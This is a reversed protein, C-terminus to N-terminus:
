HIRSKYAKAEFLMKVEFDLLQAAQDDIEEDNQAEQPPNQAPQSKDFPNNRDREALAELSYDQQQRYLQDGGEVPGLNLKRRGENPKIYNKGKELFEMLTKQDMRFLGDLDLQTRYGDAIGLGDDLCTEMSEILIQLCQSYYAINLAEVNNYSPPQGVGVMYAPVHFCSCIKEDSWGLQELLQADASSMRLQNYTLGDGAVAVKGSNDGSFKSEFYEKLRQATSDSISGPATLIGSPNSGNGFFNKSNKIIKIGMESSIGAAFIPSLGVLPHFLCNFRDHIIESAPVTNEETVEALKDQSIKYYVDGNDAVLPTVKTPDLIQVAEVERRQNRIKYGYTNGNTQKSGAWHQKFQIHNEYNNPKKLLNTVPHKTEEWIGEKLKQVTPRLKGIDSQILTICAFVTPNSLVSDDSATYAHHTQWSGSTWDFIQTWGQNDVSQLAKEKLADISLGSKEIEKQLLMLKYSNM